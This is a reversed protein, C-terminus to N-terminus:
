ANASAQSGSKKKSTGKGGSKGSSKGGSAAVPEAADNDDGDTEAADDDEDGEGDKSKSKKTKEPAVPREEKGTSKPAGIKKSNIAEWAEIYKNVWEADTFRPDFYFASKETGGDELDPIREHVIVKHKKCDGRLVRRESKLLDARFAPADLTRQQYIKGFANVAAESLNHPIKEKEEDTDKKKKSKSSNDPPAPADGEVKEGANRKLASEADVERKGKKGGKKGGGSAAPAANSAAANAQSEQKHRAAAAAVADGNERTAAATDCMRAAGPTKHEHSPDNTCRSYGDKGKEYM